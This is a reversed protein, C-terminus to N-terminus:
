RRRKGVTLASSGVMNALERLPAKHLAEIEGDVGENQDQSRVRPLITPRANAPIQALVSDLATNAHDHDDGSPFTPPPACIQSTWQVNARDEQVCENWESEEEDDFTYLLDVGFM